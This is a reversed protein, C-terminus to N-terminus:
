RLPLDTRLHKKGVRAEFISNIRLVVTPIRCSTRSSPYGPPWPPHGLGAPTSPPSLQAPSSLGGSSTSQPSQNTRRLDLLKFSRASNQRFFGPRAAKPTDAGPSSPLSQQSCQSDLEIDEYPNEKSLDLIDEYHHEQSLSHSFLDEFELSKRNTNDGLREGRPRSYVGSPPKTSFTPLPPLNRQGRGKRQSRELSPHQFTRQPKPVPNIPPAGPEAYVNEWIPGREAATTKSEMSKDKSPPSFYNGLETPTRGRNEGMAELERFLTFVARKEQSNQTPNKRESHRRLTGVQEQVPSCLRLDGMKEWLEKSNEQKERQVVRCDERKQNGNLKDNGRLGGTEALPLPRTALLNEVNEKEYDRSCVAGSCDEAKPNEKPKSSKTTGRLQRTKPSCPRSDGNERGVNEQRRSSEAEQEESTKCSNEVLSETKKISTCPGLSGMPEKGEWLSIKDKINGGSSRPLKSGLSLSGESSLPEFKTRRHAMMPSEERQNWLNELPAFPLEPAGPRRQSGGKEYISAAHCHSREALCSKKLRKVTSYVCRPQSTM